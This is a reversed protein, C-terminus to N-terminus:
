LNSDIWEIIREDSPRPANLSIINGKKDFMLFRPIGDIDYNRCLDSKFNDACIFQLWGPKEQDLSKEWKKRNDDLSISVLQIRKDKKYHEYLKAMYPTEYVCPGCWTAWCDIYVAKGRLDKLSYTKGKRDQMTFDAAPAGVKLKSYHNYLKEVEAIDKANTSVAKFAALQEDMDAPADKMQQSAWDAAFMNIIDQNTFAKKLCDYFSSATREKRPPMNSEMYWRWYNGIKEMNATDNHDFSLMWREFDPDQEQKNRVKAWGFRCLDSFHGRELQNGTMKRFNESKVQYLEGLRNEYDKVVEKRYTNFDVTALKDWPWKDYNGMMDDTKMFEFCDKNDGTYNIDLYNAKEGYQEKQAFSIQMDAQMKDEIFIMASAKPEECFVYATGPEVVNVTIDFSGDAAVHITDDQRGEKPLQIIMFVADKHEKIKGTFHAQANTEVHTFLCAACVMAFFFLRKM